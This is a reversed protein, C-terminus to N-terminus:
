AADHSAVERQEEIIAQSVAWVRESEEMLRESLRKTLESQPQTSALAEAMGLLRGSTTALESVHRVFPPVEGVQAAM